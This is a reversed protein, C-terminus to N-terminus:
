LLAVMKCNKSAKGGELVAYCGPRSDFQHVQYGMKELEFTIADTTHFEEWSMEPHQHFWRRQEIIYSETKEALERVLGDM